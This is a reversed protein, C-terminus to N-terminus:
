HDQVQEKKNIAKAELKKKADHLKGLEEDFEAKIIYEPSTPHEAAELDITAEVMQILKEM